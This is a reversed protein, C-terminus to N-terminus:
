KTLETNSGVTDEEIHIGVMTVFPDAAPAAGGGILAIRKFQIKISAEIKYNTGTITGIDFYLHTRDTTNLPILLDLSSLTATAVVEDTDAIIYEVSYRVYRNTGDLGNTIIHCHVKFDSGEKYSHRIEGAGLDIYDNIAFNYEYINGAVATTYDPQNAGVLKGSTM